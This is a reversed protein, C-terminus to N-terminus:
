RSRHRVGSLFTRIAGHGTHADTALRHVAVLRDERYLVRRRGDDTALEVRGTAPDRQVSVVSTMDAMVDGEAM